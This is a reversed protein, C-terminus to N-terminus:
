PRASGIRGEKRGLEVWHLTAALCNGAGFATMLDSYHNLYYTPDFDASPRRCESVGNTLYHNRVQSPNSVSFGAGTVLDPNYKLYDIVDFVTPDNMAVAGALRPLLQKSLWALESRVSSLSGVIIYTTYSQQLPAHGNPSFWWVPAIAGTSNTSPTLVNIPDRPNPFGPLSYPNASEDMPIYSANFNPMKKTSGSPGQDEAYVALAYNEDGTSVIWPHYDSEGPNLSSAPVATLQDTEPIYKFFTNFEANLFIAPVSINMGNDTFGSPLTVSLSYSIINPHGFAGVAVSKGMQQVSTTATMSNAGEGPIQASCYSARQSYTSWYAPRSATTMVGQPTVSIGELLSSTTIGYGDYGGGAETPNDCAGGYDNWDAQVQRGHDWNNVFQKGGYWIGNIAGAVTSSSEIQVVENGFLTDGLAGAPLQGGFTSNAKTGSRGEISGNTLYHSLAQAYKSPGTFCAALDAYTQLYEPSSFGPSARRGEYVGNNLWHNIAGDETQIGALPLDPNMALYYQWIFIRSDVLQSASPVFGTVCQISICVGNSLLYGSNCSTAACSDWAAGTGNCTQSGAGNSIPCSQQANPSCLTSALQSAESSLLDTAKFGGGCGSLLIAFMGIILNRVWGGMPKIQLPMALQWPNLQYIM